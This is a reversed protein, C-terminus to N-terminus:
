LSATAGSIKFMTKKQHSMDQIGHRSHEPQPKVPIVFTCGETQDLELFQANCTAAAVQSFCRRKQKLGKTWQNTWCNGPKVLGLVRSKSTLLPSSCLSTESRMKGVSSGYTPCTFGHLDMLIWRFGLNKFSVEMNKM